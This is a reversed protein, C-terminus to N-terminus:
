APAAMRSSAIADALAIVRLADEVHLNARLDKTLDSTGMVLAALRPSAGGARVAAAQERAGAKASPAVADELDLIIVDAPLGRTKDIARRNSGPM